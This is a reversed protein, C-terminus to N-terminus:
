KSETHRRRREAAKKRAEEKVTEAKSSDAKSSDGKDAKDGGDAKVGAAAAGKDAQEGKEATKAKQRELRAKDVERELEDKRKRIREENRSPRYVEPIKDLVNPATRSDHPAFGARGKEIAVRGAATEIFTSGANVKDYTGPAVPSKEGPAVYLPEHDTGRIGITANTTRLLQRNPQYKGIWGTITRLTGTLLSVVSTDEADGEARIVEIKMRTSSRLAVLGHDSTKVHM